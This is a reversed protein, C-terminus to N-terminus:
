KILNQGAQRKNVNQFRKKQQAELPSSTTQYKSHREDIAM